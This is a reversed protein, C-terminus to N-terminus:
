DDTTQAVLASWALTANLHTGLDPLEALDAPPVPDPTAGLQALAVTVSLLEDLNVAAVTAAEVTPGVVTVGHGLLICVDHGDMAEVMEAALEMRSILVSRRYISVGDLAMRMAPINYAGFVPRPTLGALGCLVASRPHAHVVAGADPRAQYLGVHIPWEKPIQWTSNDELHRGQWDVLRIDDPQTRGVGRENIGRCRILLQDAGIRASVHGLVGDVLGRQALVRCAQAVTARHADLNHPDGQTSFASV